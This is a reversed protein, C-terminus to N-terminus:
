QADAGKEASPQVFRCGTMLMLHRLDVGLTPGFQSLNGVLELLAVEVQGEKNPQLLVEHARICATLMAFCRGAAERAVGAPTGDSTVSTVNIPRM